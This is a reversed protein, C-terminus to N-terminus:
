FLAVYFLRTISIIKEKPIKALYDVIGKKNEFEKLNEQYFALRQEQNAVREQLDSRQSFVDGETLHETYARLTDRDGTIQEQLPGLEESTWGNWFLQIKRKQQLSGILRQYEDDQIIGEIGTVLTEALQDEQQKREELLLNASEEKQTPKLEGEEEKRVAEELAIEEEETKAEILKCLPSVDALRNEALTNGEVTISDAWYGVPIDGAKPKNCDFGYKRHGTITNGTANITGFKKYAEYFQYAIGSANNNKITNGSIVFDSSGVILEIGSEGNNEIRNNKISGRTNNRIDLGEQKNDVISTGSVTLKSGAEAYIGKGSSGGIRSDKVTLVSGGSTMVIGVATFDRIDVSEISAVTDKSLTIANKVKTHVSLNKVVARKKFNLSGTLTTDNKGAGEINVGQTFTVNGPFEGKGVKVEDVEGENVEEAAKELTKYPNDSSGDNSDDGSEKVYVTKASAQVAASLFLGGFFLLFLLGGFFTKQRQM